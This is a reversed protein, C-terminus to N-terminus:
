KKRYILVIEVNDNGFKDSLNKNEKVELFDYNDILPKEVNYKLWSYGKIVLDEKIKEGNEDQYKVTLEKVDTSIVDSSTKKIFATVRAEDIVKGDIVFQYTFTMDKDLNNPLLIEYFVNTGSGKITVPNTTNGALFKFFFKNEDITSKELPWTVGNNDTIIVDIKSYDLNTGYITGWTKKSQQGESVETHKFDLNGSGISQNNKYSKIDINTFVTDYIDQGNGFITLVEIKDSIPQNTNNLISLNYSKANVLNNQPFKITAVLKDGVKEFTINSNIEIDAKRTEVDLVRIKVSNKELNEGNFEITVNGGTSAVVYNKIEYGNVKPKAVNEKTLSSSVFESVKGDKSKLAAKEIEIKRLLVDFPKLAKDLKIILNKGIIELRDNDELPIKTGFDDFKIKSKLAQLNDSVLNSEFEVRITSFDASYYAKIFKFSEEKPNEDEKPPKVNPNAKLKIEEYKDMKDDYGIYIKYVKDIAFYEKAKLVLIRSAPKTGEISQIYINDSETEKGDIIERASIKINNDLNKGFVQIKAVDSENDISNDRLQTQYIEPKKEEVPPKVRGKVTIDIFKDGMTKGGFYIRYLKDNETNNDKFVLQVEANKETTSIIKLSVDKSENEIDNVVEKPFIKLDGLNKGFIKGTTSNEDNEIIRDEFKAFLIEVEKPNEIIEKKAKVTIEIFHETKEDKGFYIKYIKDKKSTNEKFRLQLIGKVGTNLLETMEVDDTTVETGDIKEYPFIKVGKVDKGIVNGTIERESNELITTKFNVRAIEFTDVPKHKLVVEIFDSKDKENEGFYLKYKKDLNTKNEPLTIELQRFGSKGTNSIVIDDILNEVNGVVEYVFVKLNELGKGLVRGSVKNNGYELILNDFEKNSIVFKDRKELNIEEINFEDAGYKLKLNLNKVTKLDGINVRIINKETDLEVKLADNYAIVKPKIGRYIKDLNVFPNSIEFINTDSEFNKNLVINQNKVSKEYLNSLNSIVSFDRIENEDIKLENLGTLNELVAIDSVMNNSFSLNYLKVLKKFAAIDKVNNDSLDLIELNTLEELPTIDSILNDNIYLNKLSLIDKLSDISEIKNGELNLEVTKKYDKLFEVNSIKNKSLNLQEINKLRSLASVEEISNNELNLNTLEKLNAIHTVDEINNNLAWLWNLKLLNKVPEINEIQNTVYGHDGKGGTMTLTKLNTLDRVSSIDNVRNKSFDLDTLNTLKSLIDINEIKNHSIYLEKLNKLNGLPTIDEIDNHSLRLYELNELNGIPSIDVVRYVERDDGDELHPTSFILKKLFNLKGLPNIDKINNSTIDLEKLNKLNEIGDIKEIKNYDLKLVELSTIDFISSIDSIGNFSLILTKLNKAKELGELDSVGEFELNLLQIKELDSEFIDNSDKDKRYSKDSIEINETNEGNYKKLKNLIISKLQSDKFTVTKDKNDEPKNEPKEEPKNEPKEEPKDESSGNNETEKNSNNNGSNGNDKIINQNKEESVFNNERNDIVLTNNSNKKEEKKTDDKETKKSEESKKSDKKEDKKKESSEEKKTHEKTNSIDVINKDNTNKFKDVVFFMGVAFVFLLLVAIAIKKGKEM